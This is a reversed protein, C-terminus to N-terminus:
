PSIDKNRPAIVQSKTLMHPCRISVNIGSDKLVGIGYRGDEQRVDYTLTSIVTCATLYHEKFLCIPEHVCCNCKESTIM